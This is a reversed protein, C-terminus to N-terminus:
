WNSSPIINMRTSRGVCRGIGISGITRRTDSADYVLDMITNLRPDISGHVAQYATYYLASVIIKDDVGVYDPIPDVDRYVKHYIPCGDSLGLYIRDMKASLMGSSQITMLPTVSEDAVYKRISSDFRTDNEQIINVSHPTFNYIM